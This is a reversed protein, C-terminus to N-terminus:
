EGGAVKKLTRVVKKVPHEVQGELFQEAADEKSVEGGYAERLRWQHKIIWLYLDTETRKPFMKLIDQARILDVMPMYVHDYWAALAEEYPVDQGRQEGLYWRHAAVHERLLDYQGPLTVQIQADPRVQLLNTHKLFEAREESLIMTELWGTRNLLVVLKKVAPLPYSGMLHRAAEARADDEAGDEYRYAQRLYGQYEVVWLYLDTETLGSFEKLLNQEHIMDVLPLYVTDFWSLVAEDYSVEADRQEGLYWRHVQIHELLRSYYEPSTANLSTDLRSVDLRTRLIFDAHSKKLELEDIRTSRTLDVPTDIEIIYADVFEQGRERAVSVRHNGDKVFYVEGVKYLEVPPLIVDQYHAKDISLWRDRTRRQIPLFARDFDHYRGFSGVIQEIPVQGLGVYHQGRIPLKQRVQDFPLLENDAGVLRSIVSRWFGKTIAREFDQQATNEVSM